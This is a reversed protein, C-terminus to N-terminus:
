WELISFRYWDCPIWHARRVALEKLLQVRSSTCPKVARQLRRSTPCRIWSRARPHHFVFVNSQSQRDGGRQRNPCTEDYGLFTEIIGTFPMAEFSFSELVQFTRYPPSADDSTRLFPCALPLSLLQRAATTIPSTALKAAYAKAGAISTVGNPASLTRMPYAFKNLLKTQCVSVDKFHQTPSM